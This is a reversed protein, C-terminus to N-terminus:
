RYPDPRVRLSPLQRFGHEQRAKLSASAPKTAGRNVASLSLFFTSNQSKIYRTIASVSDMHM